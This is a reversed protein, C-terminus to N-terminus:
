KHFAIDRLIKPDPCGIRKPNPNDSLLAKRLGEGLRAEEDKGLFGGEADNKRTFM